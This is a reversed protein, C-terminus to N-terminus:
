LGSAVGVPRAPYAPREAASTGIRPRGAPLTREGPGLQRDGTRRQELAAAWETTADGLPFWLFTAETRPIQYGAHRLAHRPRVREATVEAVRELVYPLPPYPTENSALKIAGPVTKGPVYAPLSALVSRLKV